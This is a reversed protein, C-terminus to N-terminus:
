RRATAIGDVVYVGFWRQSNSASGIVEFEAAASDKVLTSAVEIILVGNGDESNAELVSYTLRARGDVAEWTRDTLTVDFDLLARGNLKLTFKGQPQSIFGMAAPLRFRVVSQGGANRERVQPSLEVVATRWALREQGASQRCYAMPLRGMWSAYPLAEVSAVVQALGNMGGKVFEARAKAAQEPTASGFRAPTGQKLWAILDAVDQPAMAQELGEPMLSLASARIEKIDGRLITERVGGGQVLTLGSATEGRVIGSLSRGDKTEVNYAVFNPNIGANPDFIALVYDQVSKGAFEALNPGVEHGRGRMAHCQACNKEFVAGGSEARGTMSSVADFGKLVTARDSQREFLKGARTRLTFNKHQMLAQREAPSIETASVRGQEVGSLLSGVWEERGVLLGLIAARQSPTRADWGALMLAPAESVQLRRLRAMGAQRLRADVGPELCGLLIEVESATMAADRSSPLGPRGLLAIAAERDVVPAAGDRALKRAAGLFPGLAPAYDGAAENRREVVDLLAALLGLSLAPKSADFTNGTAAFLKRLSASDRAASAMLQQAFRLTEAQDGAKAQLRELLEFAHSAASSLVAARLWRDESQALRALPEGSRPDNCEGLSLAAQFRVSADSDNALNFVLQKLERLAPYQKEDRSRLQSEVLRLGTRRVAPHSSTLAESLSDLDGMQDLLCLAQVQVAAHRCHGESLRSLTDFSGTAEDLLQQPTSRRAKALRQWEARQTPVSSLSLGRELIQRQILDRTPGNETDLAKALAAPNERTLDRVPRPKAGRPYVRYIRGMDAGARIDLQKLREPPIWRPHEIVFRYMDVVYLAGDPGTRVQVPRFWNDTSSLFETRLEDDARRGGFTVGNPELVLRHVLNHVPECIFANGYYNTGLLVDRYIGPGCGSTVINAMQQDNFRELTHSAPFLKNAAVGGAVLVRPEPYTVHPNRRLYHDPLPYHWLWTSNDNGFWNDFDDRVRGFQSIGSVPEIEGTDPQYRFDRGSLNVEKGTQLSKVKGGFLGSSGHLWGDLGWVFGNVRAQYNHTAFGTVNTRIMDARGDGNTDEAYLINPAACILAGQRWPMVGTPFPIRDLFVAAKDYRGDGDTDTLIKIRGGPTFGGAPEKLPEGYKRNADAPPNLGSPYDYMECVWLRGRADWDIAVPSTVLPESAVLEVSLNAHTRLTGLAQQPTKPATMEGRQPAALFAKPVLGHVTRVILDEANTSLRAPRDYYWLSEEAEYGGEALIRRSPIYCPVYNAYGSVWLRQADFERKLRLAYDVVVEGPLFVLALDDGFSWTTVPYYLTDPVSEGREIRALWKKAHYGVIGANTSRALWQDRTFHPGFPLAIEKAATALRSNLPLFTLGLLRKVEAGIEEGHRKAFALGGDAGGRPAPNADAGCGITILAVAGPNERELAEQAYGAWDGCVHNFEGGLTTCHCAYNAVLAILRGDTSEAKLVPLAHDVPGSANDGFVASKGVVTRRNKAFTATGQSWSLRGAKRNKLAETAVHQLKDILDATYRDIAALQDPPLDQVFINPAWNRTAPASHTHSSAIVINAAKLKASKMLRARVERWTTEAIGCNDLTILVAPGERDSGIALAKAWLKQEVGTHPAKRMAYGTLRIPEAPTVDARAAGLM